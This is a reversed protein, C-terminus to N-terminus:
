TPEGLDVDELLIKWTPEINETKGALKVDDEYVSLFLGRARNVFLCEWSLVTEWGHELLVKEFNGKGYSDQLLISRVSEKRSSRSPRGYQVMTQAMHTTTSTDLCRSMRVDAAQGACGPFRSVIDMVKAATTQTASSGQETFVAYSGSDDKVIDGPLM